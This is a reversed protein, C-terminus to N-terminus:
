TRLEMPRRKPEITAYWIITPSRPETIRDWANLMVTLEAWNKTSSMRRAQNVKQKLIAKVSSALEPSRQRSRYSRREMSGRPFIRDNLASIWEISQRRDTSRCRHLHNGVILHLRRIRREIRVSLPEATSWDMSSSTSRPCLSRNSISQCIRWNVWRTVKTRRDFTPRKYSFPRSDIEPMLDQFRIFM